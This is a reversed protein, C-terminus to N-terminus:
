TREGRADRALWVAGILLGVMVVDLGHELLHHVSPSLWRQLMLVGIVTRALLTGLALTILLYSWSRRRVFAALALVVVLASAAAAVILVPRLM